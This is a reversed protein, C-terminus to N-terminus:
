AGALRLDLKILHQRKGFISAFQDMIGCRVGVFNNEAAQAIRTMDMMSINLELLTNLAFLVCM